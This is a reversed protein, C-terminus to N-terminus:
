GAALLKVLEIIVWVLAKIAEWRNPGEDKKRDRRAM